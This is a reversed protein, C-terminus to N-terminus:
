AGLLEPMTVSRWSGEKLRDTALNAHFDPEILCREFHWEHLTEGTAVSMEDGAFGMTLKSFDYGLGVGLAKTLAEKGTWLDLLRRSLADGLLMDLEALEPKSFVKAKVREISPWRSAREVDLGVQGNTSFACCIIGDTHAISFQLYDNQGAALVPKGHETMDLQWAAGAADFQAFGFRLLSRGLVFEGRRDAWGMGNARDVEESPLKQLLADIQAKQVTDSVIHLVFTTM